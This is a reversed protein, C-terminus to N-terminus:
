AALGDPDRYHIPDDTPEAAVADDLGGHLLPMRRAGIM